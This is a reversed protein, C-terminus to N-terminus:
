PSLPAVKPDDMDARLMPALSNLSTERYLLPLTSTDTSDSFGSCLGNDLSAAFNEAKVAPAPILSLSQFSYLSAKAESVTTRPSRSQAPRAPKGTSLSKPSM